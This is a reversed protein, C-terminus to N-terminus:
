ELKLCDQLHGVVSIVTFIIFSVVMVMSACNIHHHISIISLPYCINVLACHACLTCLLAHHHMVVCSWVHCACWTCLLAHSHVHHACHCVITCSPVHHRVVICSLVCHHVVICSPVRHCMITSSPACHHVITSSPHMICIICILICM